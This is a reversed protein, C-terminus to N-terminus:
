LARYFDSRDELKLVWNSFTNPSMRKLSGHMRRNNYFDMYHDIAAYAEEFTMFDEKTFLDREMLSHFSEIYANMNPTNPPIREHVMDFSECTDGFLTSVFQPGNDSRIVPLPEGVEIRKVLARVLTQCAHKAECVPGKYYEVIVRDFVDIISLVFFFRDRGVVYGYKIDIQWLQNPGTVLRNKPLRRPHKSKSKRQKQLIGLEKCLRYSKRKGLILARENRLCQALMKYGYIHEEGEVLELLWENIQEDSVKQGNTTLSYGPCPRGKKGSSSATKDVSIRKKRDYYTSEALGIIRLV